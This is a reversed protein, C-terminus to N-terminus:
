GGSADSASSSDGGKAKSGSSGGSSMDMGSMSGGGSMDELASKLRSESDILFNGSSVVREGARLGSLVERRGDVRQGVTVRRPEFHGDQRAIFVMQRTGTDIVADDSVTLHSGLSKTMVVDAYMGPKLTGDGNAVRVRARLTRTQPDVTPYLYDIAGYWTRGPYATLTLQARDGVRVAALDQEYFEALVWVENLDAVAMLPTSPEVRQGELVSKEMVYGTVPAYLTLAKIPQGSQEVRRIESDPIDWLKLRRRSAAVLDDGSESIEPFSSGSLRKKAKLAILYEEQTAVLDPSYIALLPQGKRVPKGTFDVYLKEVWGGTKSYVRQIRTEDATVQGVARIEKTMPALRALETRLGILQQKEPDLYVTAQGPVEPKAAAGKGAAAEEKGPTFPVLSMGCIPCDGPHDSVYDPHMPCHYLQGSKATKKTGPPMHLGCYMWVGSVGAALVVVIALLWVRRRLVRRM